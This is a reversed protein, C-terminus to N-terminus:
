GVVVKQDIRQKEGVAIERALQQRALEFLGAGEATSPRGAQQRREAEIGREGIEREGLCAGNGAALAPRGEAGVEDQERVSRARIGGRPKRGLLHGLRKGCAGDKGANPDRKQLLLGREAIRDRLQILRRDHDPQEGSFSHM